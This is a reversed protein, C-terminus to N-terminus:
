HAESLLDRAALNHRPQFRLLFLALTLIARNCKSKHLHSVVEQFLLRISAEAFQRPHGWASSGSFPKRTRELNMKSPKMPVACGGDGSRQSASM